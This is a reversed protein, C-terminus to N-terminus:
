KENRERSFGTLYTLVDDVNSTYWTIVSPSVPELRGNLLVRIDFILTFVLGIIFAFTLFILELLCLPLRFLFALVTLIKM